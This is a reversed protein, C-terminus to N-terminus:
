PLDDEPFSSRPSSIPIGNRTTQIYFEESYEGANLDNEGYFPRVGSGKARVVVKYSGPAVSLTTSGNPEISRKYSQIKGSYMVDITYSTSNKLAIKAITGYGGYGSYSRHPAFLKGHDGRAIDEVELDIIRKNADAVFQGNPNRVIYKRYASITDKDKVFMYDDYLREARNTALKAYKTDSYKDAFLLLSGDDKSERLADWKKKAALLHEEAAKKDLFAQVMLAKSEAIKASDKWSSYRKALQRLKKVDQSKEAAEINANVLEDILGGVVDHYKDTVDTGLYYDHLARFSKKETIAKYQAEVVVDPHIEPYDRIFNKVQTASTLDLKKFDNDVTEKLLDRAKVVYETDRWNRCFLRLRSVRDSYSSQIANWDKSANVGNSRCILILSTIGVVGSVYGTAKKTYSKM